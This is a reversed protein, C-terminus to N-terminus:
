SEFDLLDEGEDIKHTITVPQTGLWSLGDEDDENKVVKIEEQEAHRDLKDFKEHYDIGKRNDEETQVKEMSGANTARLSTRPLSM